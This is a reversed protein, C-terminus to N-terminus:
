VLLFSDSLDIEQQQVLLRMQSSLGILRHLQRFTCAITAVATVFQFPNMCCSSWTRKAGLSGVQALAQHDTMCSNKSDSGKLADFLHVHQCASLGGSPISFMLHM